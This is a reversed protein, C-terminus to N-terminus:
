KKGSVSYCHKILENYYGNRDTLLIRGECKHVLVVVNARLSQAQSTSFSRLGSKTLEVERM